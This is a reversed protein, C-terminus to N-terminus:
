AAGVMECVGVVLVQSPQEVSMGTESGRPVSKLLEVLQILGFVEVLGVLGEAPESVEVGGSLCRSYWWTTSVM